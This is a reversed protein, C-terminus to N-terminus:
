HNRRREKPIVLVEIGTRTDGAIQRDRFSINWLTEANGEFDFLDFFLFFIGRNSTHKLGFQLLSTLLALQVFVLVSVMVIVIDGIRIIMAVAVPRMVPVVIVIVMMALLM